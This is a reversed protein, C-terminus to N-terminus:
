PNSPLSNVPPDFPVLRAEPPIKDGEPLPPNIFDESHRMVKARNKEMADTTFLAGEDIVIQPQILLVLEKRQKKATVGRFAAGVLPIDGLIPFKRQVKEDRDSILGGLVITHKNPVTVSTKIQQTRVSQVQTGAIDFTQGLTDNKQAVELTVENENNILPVVELQLLV